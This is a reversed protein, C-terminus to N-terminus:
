EKVYAGPQRGSRPAKADKSREAIAPGLGSTKQAAPSPTARKRAKEDSKHTLAMGDGPPRGGAAERSFEDQADADQRAPPKHSRGVTVTM